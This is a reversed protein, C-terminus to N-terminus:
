RSTVGADTLASEYRDIMKELSFNDTVLERSKEGFKVQKDKEVLNALAQALGEIDGARYLYGNRGPKIQERAGGITSMVMSKGLSMSELAAISFTEVSHSVIAMVNCAAILPRVDEKFGTIFVDDDLELEIIQQEINHREVGDGIILCKANIGVLKLKHVAVLLDGHAKEPRLAACIGIVYDSQDFSYKGRVAAKQEITWTDKFHQTDVGNHIVLDSRARVWRKRWYARKTECVYILKQQLLFLPRYVIM